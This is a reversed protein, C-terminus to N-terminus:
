VGTVSQDVRHHIQDGGVLAVHGVQLLGPQDDGGGHAEERNVNKSQEFLHPSVCVGFSGCLSVSVPCCACVGYLCGADMLM